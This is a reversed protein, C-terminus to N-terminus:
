GDANCAADPMRTMEVCALAISDGAATNPVPRWHSVARRLVGARLALWSLSFVTRAEVRTSSRPM